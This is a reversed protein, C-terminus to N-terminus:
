VKRPRGRGKPAVDAVEPAKPAEVPTSDVDVPTLTAGNLKWGDAQYAAVDAPNVNITRGDKILTTLNKAM